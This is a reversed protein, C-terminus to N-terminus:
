EEGLRFLGSANFKFDDNTGDWTVSSTLTHHAILRNTAATGGGGTGGTGNGSKVLVAQTVTDGNDPDSVTVDDADFVRNTWSVGSLTERHSIGALDDEFDDGGDTLDPTYASTCFLIEYTGDAELTLGTPDGLAHLAEKYYDM